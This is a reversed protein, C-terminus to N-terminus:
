VYKNYTAFNFVTYEGSEMMNLKYAEIAFDRLQEESTCTLIVLVFIELYIFRLCVSNFDNQKM